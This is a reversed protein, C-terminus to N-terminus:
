DASSDEIYYGLKRILPYLIIILLTNFLVEVLMTLIFTLIEAEAGATFIKLIYTAIEYLVTSGAAMLIITVRSDKSFNKDFYEGLLGILGLFVSTFGISNGINLDLIIGFIIGFIGGLKNGVFLGIFLALVVFLNPM